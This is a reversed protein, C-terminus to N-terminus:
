GSLLGDVGRDDFRRRWWGGRDALAGHPQEAGAEVAHALLDEGAVGGRGFPLALEALQGGAGPQIQQQVLTSM